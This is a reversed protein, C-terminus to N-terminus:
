CKIQFFVVQSNFPDKVNKVNETDEKTEKKISSWTHVTYSVILSFVIALFFKFNRGVFHLLYQASEFQFLFCFALIMLSITCFLGSVKLFFIEDQFVERYVKIHETGFLSLNESSKEMGQRLEDGINKSGQDLKKELSNVIVRTSNHIVTELKQGIETFSREIAYGWECFGEVGAEKFSKSFETISEKVTDTAKGASSKIVPGLEDIVDHVSVQIQKSISQAADTGFNSSAKVLNSTQNKLM